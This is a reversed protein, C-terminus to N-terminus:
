SPNLINEIYIDTNTRSYCIRGCFFSFVKKGTTTKHLINKFAKKADEVM